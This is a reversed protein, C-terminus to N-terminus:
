KQGVSSMVDVACVRLVSGVLSGQPRMLLLNKQFEYMTRVSVINITTFNHYFTLKKHYNQDYKKTKGQKEKDKEVKESKEEESMAMRLELIQYFQSRAGGSLAVVREDVKNVAKDVNLVVVASLAHRGGHDASKGALASTRAKIDAADVVRARDGIKAFRFM